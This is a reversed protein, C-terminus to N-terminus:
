VIMAFFDTLSALVSAVLFVRLVLNVEATGPCCAPVIVHSTAGLRTSGVRERGSTGSGSVFESKM